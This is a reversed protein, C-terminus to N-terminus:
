TSQIQMKDKIFSSAIILLTGMILIAWGWEIKISNIFIDGLSKFPNGQMQRNYDDKIENIKSIWYYLSGLIIILKSIGTLWVYKITNINLILIASFITLLITVSILINPVSGIEASTLLNFASMTGIIPITYLPVILGICILIIGIIGTKQNKKM